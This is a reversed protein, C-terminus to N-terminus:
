TCLKRRVVDTAVTLDIVLVFRRPVVIPRILPWSSIETAHTAAVAMEVIVRKAESSDPYLALEALPPAVALTGAHGMLLRHCGFIEM